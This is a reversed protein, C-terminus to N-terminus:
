RQQATKLDPQTTPEMMIGFASFLLLCNGPPLCASVCSPKREAAAELIILQVRKRKFKKGHHLAGRRKKKRVATWGTM